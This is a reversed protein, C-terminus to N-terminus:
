LSRVIDEWNEVQIGVRMDGIAAPLAFKVLGGAVKKDRKMAAIIEARDLGPPISVPLGISKLSKGIEKSLGRPALGIKEALVVEAVMGISVAEGHRIQFKSVLEVGHGITHGYNLAARFGAEYPDDEIIKAKVAIGRRVLEFLGASDSQPTNEACLRLLEPDDIMGHKFVEAMGNILETQPLSTLVDPDALVLRPSHFAGILNKGKPLDAGTKGGMGADVMALLSTPVAVWPVGRLYTAAAFGALDGVVGGGLAVVTSGREIKAALFGDWMKSVTGLTKNGEGPSITIKYTDYRSHQIAKLARKLYFGGVNEDTVLVVPGNQDRALLMEGLYDLGGPIVRVDYGPNKRSAMARLHFMGLHVGLQLAVEEPSKDSTDVQDLFSGYHPGREVLLKGLRAGEDGSLLPRQTQDQHLRSMLVGLPAMLVVVQGSEVVLARNEPSLLAGGGLAIVKQGSDLVSRLAQSERSRFGSESERAFIEPILMRSQAEIQDDLDVFPLNLNDALIRGVTSKGTGSPGYLFIPSQHTIRHSLQM